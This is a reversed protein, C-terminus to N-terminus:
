IDSLQKITVVNCNLLKLTCMSLTLLKSFIYLDKTLNSGPEFLRSMNELNTSEGTVQLTVSTETLCPLDIHLHLEHRSPQVDSM